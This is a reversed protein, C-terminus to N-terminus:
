GQLGIKDKIKNLNTSCLGPSLGSHRQIHGGVLFITPVPNPPRQMCSNSGSGLGAHGWVELVELLLWLGLLSDGFLELVGKTPGWILLYMCLVPALVLDKGNLLLLVLIHWYTVSHFKTFM